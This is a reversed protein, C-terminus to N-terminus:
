REMLQQIQAFSKGKTEPLVLLTFIAGILSSVAFLCLMVHMGFVIGISGFYKLALFALTWNFAMCFTTAFGKIQQPMIEGLVVFPLPLVGLSGLLIVASFCVLPLWRLMALDYGLTQGYCYGAFVSQGLAMGLSSIVLLLKRGLRDVLLTSAYCGCLQILGVVIVSHNASLGPQDGTASGAFVSGAYNMMYFCGCFQNLTMFFLCILFARRAHNTNFDTWRLSPPPRAPTQHDDALQQNTRQHQEQQQKLKRAGNDGTAQLRNLEDEFEDSVTVTAGIRITRYFRLSREAAQHRRVTALYHPSEPMFFFTVLFFVPVALCVWPITRYPLFAGTLYALEVGVCCSLVLLSGLTGRNSTEALEPVYLPIAVYQIGGALGGLFRTGMLYGPHDALIVLAWAAVLPFGALWATWKRGIRDVLLGAVFTGVIGGLCLAGGIWSAEEPSIPGHGHLLPSQEPSELLPLAASSWGSVTGYGVGLLNVLISALYQRWVGIRLVVAM